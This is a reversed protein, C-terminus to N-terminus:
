VRWHRSLSSRRVRDGISYRGKRLRLVRVSERGTGPTIEKLVINKLIKNVWDWFSRKAGSATVMM